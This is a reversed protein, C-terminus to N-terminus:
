DWIQPRTRRYFSSIIAIKIDSRTRQERMIRTERFWSEEIQVDTKDTKFNQAQIRRDKTVMPCFGLFVYHYEISRFIFETKLSQIRNRRYFPKFNRNKSTLYKIQNSNMEEGFQIM